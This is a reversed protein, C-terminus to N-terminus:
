LGKATTEEPASQTITIEQPEAETPSAAGAASDDPQTKMQEQHEARLRADEADKAANVKAVAAAANLKNAEGIAMEVGIDNGVGDYFLGPAFTLM